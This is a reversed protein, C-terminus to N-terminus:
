GSIHFIENGLFLINSVASVSRVLERGSATGSRSTDEAEGSFTAFRGEGREEEGEEGEEEEEEEEDDSSMLARQSPKGLKVLPIDDEDSDEDSSFILVDNTMALWPTVNKILHEYSKTFKVNRLGINSCDSDSDFFPM